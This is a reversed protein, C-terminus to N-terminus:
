DERHLTVDGQIQILNFRHFRKVVCRYDAKAEPANASLVTKNGPSAGNALPSRKRREAPVPHGGESVRQTVRALLCEPQDLAVVLLMVFFGKTQAEAILALKSEHSFATESM